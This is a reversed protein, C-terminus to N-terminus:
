PVVSKIAFNQQSEQWILTSTRGPTPFDTVTVQKSAGSLFEGAPATVTFPTPNGRATGNVFVQATHSGSGLGNYNFLLGFGTNTTSAGCISATDGRGSGYPVGRQQGGDISVTITPGACSWGSILGVGSQYSGPQPNELAMAATPAVSTPMRLTDGAFNLPSGVTRNGGRYLALGDTTPLSAYTFVDASGAYDLVGNAVFLFGDPVVYDPKLLNLAAFSQTGILMSRYSVGTGYYGDGGQATDGPLNAPFTFSRKTAGQASTLTRGAIFQQAGSYAGIVVYQVSGDANSFVQTIQFLHYTANATASAILGAVITITGVISRLTM